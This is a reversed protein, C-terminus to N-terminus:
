NRSAKAYESPSKGTYIKFMKSFHYISNYGVSLAVQEISEYDSHLIAKAKNIRFNHLYKIPPIGYTNEFNKRFYVTSMECLNSLVNNTITSDFYYSTM